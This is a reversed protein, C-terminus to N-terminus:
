GGGRPVIEEQSRERGAMKLAPHGPTRDQKMLDWECMQSRNWLDSSPIQVSCRAKRQRAGKKRARM